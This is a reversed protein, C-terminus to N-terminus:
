RRIRRQKPRRKITFYAELLEIQKKDFIDLKATQSYRIGVTPVWNRAQRQTWEVGVGYRLVNEDITESGTFSDFPVGDVSLTSTFSSSREVSQNGISLMFGFNSVPTFFRAYNLNFSWMDIEATAVSEASAISTSAPIDGSAGANLNFDGVAGYQLDLSLRSEDSFQYGVEIIGGWSFASDDATSMPVINTFGQTALLDSADAASQQAIVSAFDSSLNGAYVGPGFYWGSDSEVIDMRDSGSGMTPAAQGVIVPYSQQWGDVVVSVTASKGNSGDPLVFVVFKKGEEERVTGSVVEDSGDLTLTASQVDEADPFDMRHQVVALAPLSILVLIPGLLTALGNTNQRSKM